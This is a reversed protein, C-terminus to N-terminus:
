DPRDVEADVSLARTIVYFNLMKWPGIIRFQKVM